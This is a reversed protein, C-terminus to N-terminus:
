EQVPVCEWFSVHDGCRFILWETGVIVECVDDECALTYGCWTISCASRAEFGTFLMMCFMSITIVISKVRTKVNKM